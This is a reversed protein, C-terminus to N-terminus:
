FKGDENVIKTAKQPHNQWDGFWRVFQQSQLVNGTKKNVKEDIRHIISNSNLSDLRSLYQVKSKKFIDKAGNKDVYYIGVGGTV